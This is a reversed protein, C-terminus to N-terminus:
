EKRRASVMFYLEDTKGHIGVPNWAWSLPQIIRLMHANFKMEEPVSLPQECWTFAVDKDAGDEVDITGDVNITLIPLKEKKFADLYPWPSLDPQIAVDVINNLYRAFPRYHQTFTPNKVADKHVSVYRHVSFPETPRTSDTILAAGNTYWHYGDTDVAIHQFEPNGQHARVLNKALATFKKTEM